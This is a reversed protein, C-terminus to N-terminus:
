ASGLACTRGERQLQSSTVALIAGSVKLLIAALQRVGDEVSAQDLAVALIGPAFGPRGM